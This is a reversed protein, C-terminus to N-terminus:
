RGPDALLRRRLAVVEAQQLGGVALLSAAGGDGAVLALFDRISEDRTDQGSRLYDDVILEEELGLLLGLTACFWGTRDRGVHCHVAVAGDRPEALVRLAAVVNDLHARFQRYYMQGLSQTVPASSTRPRGSLPLSVVALREALGSSYPLTTAAEEPNRFDVAKVVRHREIWGDLEPTGIWRSLTSTRFVRGPLVSGAFADAFDRVNFFLDRSQIKDLFTRLAEVPRRLLYRTRLEEVVQLFAAALRRKQTPAEPLYLVGHLARFEAQEQKGLRKSLLMRPLFLYEGNGRALEVLRALRHLALNYEFYFRYGDSRRHANSAAEFGVLFKEIEEDASTSPDRTRRVEAERLIEGCSRDKDLAAVFRPAPVDLSNAMARLDAVAGVLRLDIKTLADDVWLAAEGRGDLHVCERVRSGLFQRLSDVVEGSSDRHVVAVDVDSFVTFTGLAQTGYWLLARVRDETEAWQRVTESLEILHRM